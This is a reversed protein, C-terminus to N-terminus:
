KQKNKKLKENIRMSVNLIYGIEYGGIDAIEQLTLNQKRNFYYVVKELTNFNRPAKFRKNLLYRIEKNQRESEELGRIAKLTDRLAEITGNKHENVKKVFKELTLSM